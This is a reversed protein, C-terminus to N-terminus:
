RRIREQRGDLVARIQKELGRQLYAPGIYIDDSVIIEEGPCDSLNYGKPAGVFYTSLFAYPDKDGFVAITIDYALNDVMELTAHVKKAPCVLQPYGGVSDFVVLGDDFDQAEQLSSLPIPFNNDFMM